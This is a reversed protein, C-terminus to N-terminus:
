VQQDDREGSAAADSSEANIDDDDDDDDDDDGTVGFFSALTGALVGLFAVGGIMLCVAAVRGLTTVPYLDGYGVTTMTVFGWWLADAYTAYGSSEPEAWKVVISCLLLLGGVYVGAQGIRAMLLRANAAKAAIWVIRALRAVRAVVVLAGASSVFLYWPCTLVVILLDVKGSRTQLYGPVLRRHVLLDLLFVLWCIIAIGISLPDNTDGYLAGVIPLIASVVIWPMIRREWREIPTSDSDHKDSM